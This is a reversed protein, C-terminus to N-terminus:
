SCNRHLKWLFLCQWKLTPNWHHGYYISAFTLNKLIINFSWNRYHGSEIKYTGALCISMLVLDNLLVMDSYFFHFPYWFPFFVLLICGKWFLTIYISSLFFFVSSVSEKIQPQSSFIKFLKLFFVKVCRKDFLRVVRIKWSDM